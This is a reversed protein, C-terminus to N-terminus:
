QKASSIVRPYGASAMYPANIKGRNSHGDRLGAFENALSLAADHGQQSVVRAQNDYKNARAQYNEFKQPDVPAGYNRSGDPYRKDQRVEDRAARYSPTYSTGDENTLEYTATAEAVTITGVLSKNIMNLNNEENGDIYLYFIYSINGKSLEGEYLKIDYINCTCFNSLSNDENIKAGLYM